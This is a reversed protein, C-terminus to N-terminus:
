VNLFYKGDKRLMGVTENNMKLKLLADWPHPKHLHDITWYSDYKPDNIYKSNYFEKRTVEKLQLYTKQSDM